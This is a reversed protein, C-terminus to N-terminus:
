CFKEAMRPLLETGSGTTSSSPDIAVLPRGHRLVLDMVLRPQGHRFEEIGVTRGLLTLVEHAAPAPGLAEDARAALAAPVALKATGLPEVELAAAAAVLAAQDAAGDELGALQRQWGPEQGHVHDGLGLVADGRELELAVEAHGVGGGPQELVLDHLDHAQALLGALEGAAHFDVVGVETTLELAALAAAARGVLNGEHRGYLGGLLAVSAQHAQRGAGEGLVRDQLEGLLRQGGRSREDAVAEPAERDDLFRADQVLWMDGAGLVQGEACDVRCQAVQFSGQGPGEVGEVELLVRVAVEGEHLVQEVPAEVWAGDQRAQAARSARGSGHIRPLNTRGLNM